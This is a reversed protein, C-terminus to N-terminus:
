CNLVRLDFAALGSSPALRPPSEPAARQPAAAPPLDSPAGTGPAALAALLGVAAHRGRESGLQADGLPLDECGDCHEPLEVGAVESRGEGAHEDAGCCTAAGTEVHASGDAEVCLVLSPTIAAALTQVLVLLLVLHRQAGRMSSRQVGSRPGSDLELRPARRCSGGNM